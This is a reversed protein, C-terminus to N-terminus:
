PTVNTGSYVTGVCVEQGTPCVLVGGAPGIIYSGPSSGAAPSNGVVASCGNGLWAATFDVGFLGATSGAGQMSVVVWNQSNRAAMAPHTVPNPGANTPIQGSNLNLYMWGGFDGAPSAGSASFQPYVNANSVSTTSTEPLTYTTTGGGSIPVNVAIAPNEHEDFRVIEQIAISGNLIANNNSLTTSTGCNATGNTRGERWIRYSTNFSSAGGQIYRAAFMSPLPQRRDYNARAGTYPVANVTQGNIYRSYFTFPLNTQSAGTLAVGAAGGEPVARIHVMPDGGAYNNGATKNLIQWDGVLVNDFLIETAYYTANDGLNTSCVAAVDVTVYGVATTTTPHTSAASGASNGCAGVGRILSNQVITLLSSPILGPLTGCTSTNINPNQGANSNLTQDSSFYGASLKGIPSVNVGLVTAAPNSSTGGNTGAGVPGIVGNVIIDYMSLPQVDYGTLFVNFDLVPVSWDTWVVVHAIQPLDSTNTITFFTDVGRTSTEVEFYPLLLTAAPAVGIDCTDDNNTTSPGIAAGGTGFSFTANPSAVPHRGWQAFASGAMLLTAVMALTLLKKM